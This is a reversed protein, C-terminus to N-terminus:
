KHGKAKIEISEKIGNTNYKNKLEYNVAFDHVKKVTEEISWERSEITTEPDAFTAVTMKIPPKNVPDLISTDKEIKWFHFAKEIDKIMEDIKM